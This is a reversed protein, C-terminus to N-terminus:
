ILTVKVVVFSSLGRKVCLPTMIINDMKVKIKVEGQASDSYTHIM